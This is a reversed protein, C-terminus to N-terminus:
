NNPFIFAGLLMENGAKCPFDSDRPFIVIDQQEFQAYSKNIFTIELTEPIIAGFLNIWPANNNGHIHAIFFHRRLSTMIEKFEYSKLREPGLEHFEIIIQLVDNLKEINEPNLTRYESGEIDIKILLNKPFKVYNDLIDNLTLTNVGTSSELGLSHFYFNNSLERVPKDTHDFLEFRIKPNLENLHDEFGTDKAVGISIVQKISILDNFIVYGGDSKPGVRIFLKSNFRDPRLLKLGGFVEKKENENTLGIFGVGLEETLKSQFNRYHSSNSHIVLQTFFSFLHRTLFTSKIVLKAIFSFRSM